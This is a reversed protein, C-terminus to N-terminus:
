QSGTGRVNDYRYEDRNGLEEFMGSLSNVANIFREEFTQIEPPTLKLFNAAEVLSGYLLADSANTGLWSTGDSSSTISEPRYVYHLEFTFGTNPTPAILFTNNDFISYYKPEGTTAAAPTYDRIFSVHKLLLYNYNSNGDIVALSLPTLFDSPAALYTNGSTGSGTVNKRFVPIQINKLIREEAEKIFVSLNNTFTTESSEVYDQIASKLTTFTWAM